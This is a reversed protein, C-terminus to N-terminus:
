RFPGPKGYHSGDCGFQNWVLEPVTPADLRHMLHLCHSHLNLWASAPPMVQVFLRDRYGLEDRATVLDGWTPLRRPRSVSLHLWHGDLQAGIDLLDVTVMCRLSDDRRQQFYMGFYILNPPDLAPNPNCHWGTKPRLELYDQMPRM